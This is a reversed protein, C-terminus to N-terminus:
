CVRFKEEIESRSPPNRMFGLSEFASDGFLETRKWFGLATLLLKAKEPKGKREEIVYQSYGTQRWAETDKLAAVFNKWKEFLEDDVWIELTNGFVITLEPM